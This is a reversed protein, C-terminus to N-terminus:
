LMQVLNGGPMLGVEATLRRAQHIASGGSALRRRDQPFGDNDPDVTAVEPVPVVLPLLELDDDTLRHGLIPVVAVQDAALIGSGLAPKTLNQPALPQWCILGDRHQSIAAVANARPHAIQRGAALM